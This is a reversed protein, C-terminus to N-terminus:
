DSGVALHYDVPTTAQRFIPIMEVLVSNWDRDMLDNGPDYYQIMNWYRFLALLRIEEPPLSSSAANYGTDTSFDPNGSGGRAVYANPKRLYALVVDKLATRTSPDFASDDDIWRVAPSLAASSSVDAPVNRFAYAQGALHLLNMVEQNFEPGNSAALFKPIAGVLVDDWNSQTTTAPHYKLLGWVKGLGALRAREDLAPQAEALRSGVCLAMLSLCVLRRSFKGM